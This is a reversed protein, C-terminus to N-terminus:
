YGSAQYAILGAAIMAGAVVAAGIAVKAPTSLGQKQVRDVERYALTMVTGTQQDSLEFSDDGIQSIYGKVGTKDRLTLKVRAREGTGRKQIELKIKAAHDAPEQTVTPSLASQSSASIPICVILCWSVLWSLKM